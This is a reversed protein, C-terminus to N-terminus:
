MDKITYLTAHTLSRFYKNEIESMYIDAFTPGLPSGMSVGDNQIFTETKFTFPTETTCVRFTEKMTKEPIEFTLLTDSRYM